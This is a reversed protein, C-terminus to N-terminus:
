GRSWQEMHEGIFMKSNSPVSSNENDKIFGTTPYIDMMLEHNKTNIQKAATKIICEIEEEQSSKCDQYWAEPFIISVNSLLLTNSKKDPFM